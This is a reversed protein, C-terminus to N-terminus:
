HMLFSSFLPDKYSKWQNFLVLPNDISIVQIFPFFSSSSWWSWWMCMYLGMDIYPDGIFFISSNITGHASPAHQPHFWHHSTVYILFFDLCPVAQSQVIFLTRLNDLEFFLKIISFSWSLVWREILFCHNLSSITHLTWHSADGVLLQLLSSSPVRMLPVMPPLLTMGWMWLDTM